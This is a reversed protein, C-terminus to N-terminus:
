PEGDIVVLARPIPKGNTAPFDTGLYAKLDEIIAITRRRSGIFSIDESAKPLSTCPNICGVSRLFGAGPHILIESRQDTKNLELGPKPAVDPDDSMVYNWTKYNEGDQTSLPYRGQKIRRGNGAPKNAGPGKTEAIAGKLDAGTQAM